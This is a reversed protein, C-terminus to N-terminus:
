YLNPVGLTIMGCFYYVGVWFGGIKGDNLLNLQFLFGLFRQIFVKLCVVWFGIQVYSRIFNIVQGRIRDM